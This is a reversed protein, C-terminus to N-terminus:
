RKENRHKLILEITTDCEKRNQPKYLVVGELTDQVLRKFMKWKLPFSENAYGKTEIIFGEGIFDPTYTIPLVKKQGRQIYDGKSNAQREYVEGEFHFSEQLSFRTPEYRFELDNESLVKAMYMELGSKYEVGQFSYKKAKSISQGKKRKYTKKM